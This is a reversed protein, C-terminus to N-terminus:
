RPSWDSTRGNWGDPPHMDHRRFAAALQKRERSHQQDHQVRYQEVAERLPAVERRVIWHIAAIIAALLTVGSGILATVATVTDILM